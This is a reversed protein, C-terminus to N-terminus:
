NQWLAREEPTMARWEEPTIGEPVGSPALTAPAAGAAATLAAFEPSQQFAREAGLLSGSQAAYQEYFQQRADAIDAARRLGEVIQMNAERTNDVSPAGRAYLRQEFDSTAGSGAPRMLGTMRAALASMNRAEPDWIQLGAGPFTDQNALNAAFEDVLGRLGRASEAATQIRSLQRADAGQLQVPRPAGGSAGGAAVPPPRPVISRIQNNAENRQVQAGGLDFPESWREPPALAAALDAQGRQMQMDHEQRALEDAMDQRKQDRTQADLQQQYQGMMARGRLGGALSRALAEGFGGSQVEIPQSLVDALAMDRASAPNEIPPSERGQEPVFPPTRFGVGMGRQGLNVMRPGRMTPMVM